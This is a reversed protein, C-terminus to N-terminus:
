GDLTKQKPLMCACPTSTCGSLAREAQSVHWSPTPAPLGSPPRCLPPDVLICATGSLGGGACAHLNIKEPMVNPLSICRTQGQFSPRPMAAGSPRSLLSLSPLPAAAHPRLPPRASAALRQRQYLPPALRSPVPSSLPVHESFRPPACPSPLPPGPTLVDIPVPPLWPQPWPATTPLLPSPHPATATDQSVPPLCTRM